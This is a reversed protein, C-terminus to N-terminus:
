TRLANWFYCYTTKLLHRINFGEDISLKSYRHQLFCYITLSSTVKFFNVVFLLVTKGKQASNSFWLFLGLELSVKMAIM